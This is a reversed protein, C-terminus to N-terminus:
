PTTGARSCCHHQWVGSLISRANGYNRPHGWVWRLVPISGLSDLLGAFHATPKPNDGTGERDKGLRDLQRLVIICPVHELAARFFGSLIFPMQSPMELLMESCNFEAVKMSCYKAVAKIVTMKGCGPPGSVLIGNNTIGADYVGKELIPLCYALLRHFPEELGLPVESDWYHQIGHVYGFKSLYSMNPIFSYVSKTSYSIETRAMTTGFSVEKTVGKKARTSLQTVKLFVRCNDCKLSFVEGLCVCRPDTLYSVAPKSIMSIPCKQIDESILSITVNTICPIDGADILELSIYRPSDDWPPRPHPFISFLSEPHLFAVPMELNSVVPYSGSALTPLSGSKVSPISGMSDMSYYDTNSFFKVVAYYPVVPGKFPDSPDNQEAFHMNKRGTNDAPYIAVYDASSLPGLWSSLTLEFTKPILIMNKDLTDNYFPQVELAYSSSEGFFHSDNSHNSSSLVAEVPPTLATALPDLVRPTSKPNGIALSHPLCKLPSVSPETVTLLKKHLHEDAEPSPSLIPRQLGSQLHYSGSVLRQRYTSEVDGVPSPSSPTHSSSSPIVYIETDMTIQGQLFPSAMLVNFTLIHDPVTQKQNLKMKSMMNGISLHLYNNREESLDYRFQADQKVIMLTGECQHRLHQVFKGCLAETLPEGEDVHELYVATLPFCRSSRFWVIDGDKFSHQSLFMRSVHLHYSADSTMPMTPSVASKSFRDVSALTVGPYSAELNKLNETERPSNTVNKKYFYADPAIAIVDVSPPFAPLKSSSVISVSLSDLVVSTVSSTHVLLRGKLWTSFLDSFDSEQTQSM